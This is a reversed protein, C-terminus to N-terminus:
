FSELLISSKKEVNKHNVNENPGNNKGCFIILKSCNRVRHMMLFIQSYILFVVNKEADVFKLGMEIRNICAQIFQSLKDAVLM